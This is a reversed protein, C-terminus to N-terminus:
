KLHMEFFRQPDTCFRNLERKSMSAYSARGKDAYSRRIELHLHNPTGFNARKLEEENFLRALVTKEDVWNGVSVRIDEIHTYVSYIFKKNPLYHKIIVTKHPFTRFIQFIRGRGIACVTEDFGGKLDIGAHHHGPRYSRRYEGYVAIVRNQLMSFSKRDHDDFPSFFGECIQILKDLDQVQRTQEGSNTQRDISKGSLLFSNLFFVIFLIM